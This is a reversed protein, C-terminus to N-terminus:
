DGIEVIDWAFSNNQFNALPNPTGQIKFCGLAAVMACQAALGM